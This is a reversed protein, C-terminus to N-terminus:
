KGRHSEEVPEYTERFISDKIPYFEGQVGRIIWDGASAIMLGELTPIELQGLPPVFGVGNEVHGDDPPPLHNFNDHGDAIFALAEKINAGTWRLADIVVPKKRYRTPDSAV